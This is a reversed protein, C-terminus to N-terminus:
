NRYFCSIPWSAYRNAWITGTFDFASTPIIFREILYFFTNNWLSNQISAGDVPITWKGVINEETLWDLSFGIMSRQVSFAWNNWTREIAHARNISFGQGEYGDCCRCLYWEGMRESNSCQTAGVNGVRGVTPRLEVKLSCFVVRPAGVKDDDDWLVSRRSRAFAYLAIDSPMMRTLTLM